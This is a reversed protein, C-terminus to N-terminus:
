LICLVFNCMSNGTTSSFHVKLIFCKPVLVDGAKNLWHKKHYKKIFIESYENKIDVVCCTRKDSEPSSVLVKAIEQNDIVEYNKDVTSKSKQIMSDPNEEMRFTNLRTRLSTHAKQKKEKILSTLGSLGTSLWHTKPTGGDLCSSDADCQISSGKANGTSPIYEDKEERQQQETTDAGHDSLTTQPSNDQNVTKDLGSLNLIQLLQKQPRHRFHFCIFAETEIYESFFNRLDSTHLDKPINTIILHM